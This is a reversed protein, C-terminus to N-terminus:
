KERDYPVGNKAGCLYIGFDTDVEIECDANYSSDLFKEFSIIIPKLKDIDKKEAHYAPGSAGFSVMFVLGTNKDKINYTYGEFLINEPKGFHTWLRSLMDGMPANENRIKGNQIFDYEVNRNTPTNVKEYMNQNIKLIEKNSCALLLISIIFTRFFIRMPTLIYNFNQKVM